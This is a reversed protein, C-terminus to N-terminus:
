EAIRDALSALKTSPTFYLSESNVCFRLGTPRPGDDFVHGLHADCRACLIETRLMGLSRDQHEVVNEDAVPKFFSPWGTGSHFKADSSFLPLGCCVCAYVGEKKNDLLTGCYAPETGKARAIRYQAPTLQKEWEADSKVVKATEVPGVLQGSKNFVKVSVKTAVPAETGNAGSESQNAEVGGQAPAAQAAPAVAQSGSNADCGWAGFACLSIAAAVAKGHM